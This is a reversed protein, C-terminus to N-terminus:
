DRRRFELLLFELVASTSYVVGEFTIDCLLLSFFTIDHGM